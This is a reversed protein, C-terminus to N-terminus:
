FIGFHIKYQSKDLIRGLFPASLGSVLAELGILFGAAHISFKFNRQLFESSINNFYSIASSAGVYAIMAMWYESPFKSLAKVHPENSALPVVVVDANGGAIARSQKDRAHDLCLVFASAFWSFVCILFGLFFVASLSGTAEYLRPSYADNAFTALNSFCYDISM